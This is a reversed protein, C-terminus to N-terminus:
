EEPSDVKISEMLTQTHDDLEEAQTMMSDLRDISLQGKIREYEKNLFAIRGTQKAIASDHCFFEIDSSLWWGVVVVASILILPLSRM